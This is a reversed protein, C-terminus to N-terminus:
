KLEIQGIQLHTEVDGDSAILDVNEFPAGIVPDALGDGDFDAAALSYGFAAFAQPKAATVSKFLSGGGRFIFVKGAKPLGTVDQNPAGVLINTQGHASVNKRLLVSAGFKAFAQQDPSRLTQLKNGNLGNFLHVVGHLDNLLPAGVAFDPTGDGNLDEGAAVASGFSPQQEAVPSPITFIRAGTKGSFVYARSQGPAGILIDSVRDTDIKGANALATGFRGGEEAGGQSPPTIERLLNGNKGSFIYVIGVEALGDPSGKFPAAVVLDPVGDSNVDGVGAVAFGLRANEDPEPDDLTLLVNGNKGNFLFARGANILKEGGGQEPVIHHPVGVLIDSTGDGNVDGVNAISTGFQGGFKEDVVMQFEPDDLTTIVNLTRGSVLFVKGVNQPAGFGPFGLFDSDQFPAGVALDPVGDNDLDGVVAIAAGFLTSSREPQPDILTRARVTTAVLASFMLASIVLPAALHRTLSGSSLNTANTNTIKEGSHLSM